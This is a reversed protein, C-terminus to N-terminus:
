DANNNNIKGPTIYLIQKICPLACMHHAEYTRAKSCPGYGADNSCSITPGKCSDQLRLLIIKFYFFLIHLVSLISKCTCKVKYICERPAGPLNVFYAYGLFVPNHVQLCFEQLQLSSLIMTCLEKSKCCNPSKCKANLLKFV